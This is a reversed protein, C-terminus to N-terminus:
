CHVLLQQKMRRGEEQVALRLRVAAAAEEQQLLQQQGHACVLAQAQGATAAPPAAPHQAPLEQGAPPHAGQLHTLVSCM